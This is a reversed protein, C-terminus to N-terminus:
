PSRRTRLMYALMAAVLAFMAWLNARTGPTTTSCDSSVRAQGEARCSAGECDADGSSEGEVRINIAKLTDICQQLNDGHDVYQGACFLAGEDSECEVECGGQIEAECKAYGKAQCDVQCDINTDVKCSGECGAECRAECSASPAEIDCSAQCSAGCSGMCAAMCNGGGASGACSAECRGSCDAGCAAECDFKGPDVECQGECSATCSGRCEISPLEDCGADCDVALQASCAARVSIPTCMAECSASPPIVECSADAEVYINGCDALDARAPAAGMVGALTGLAALTITTEAWTRLPSPKRPTRKFRLLVSSFLAFFTPM